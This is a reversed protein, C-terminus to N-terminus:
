NYETADPNKRLLYRKSVSKLQVRGLGLHTREVTPRIVIGERIHEEKGTITENGDTHQLVAEVTYPGRYLVPVRPLLNKACFTELEADDLYRSNQAGPIGVFVDFVRFDLNGRVGYKLDQVGILEGLVFVRDYGNPIIGNKGALNLRRMNRVYANNDNETNDRLILGSSAHGKSSTYQKQEGNHEFVCIMCWTGHLKETFVVPENTVFVNSWGLLNEIDYQITYEHGVNQVQGGLHAPIQPVWKTIGLEDAVNMGHEWGVRAKVLVGASPVGRLTVMRIRFPPEATPMGIAVLTERSNIVSDVPIHAVLEGLSFLGKRVVCEYGDDVVVRELSTANEHLNVQTIRRIKVEFTSM